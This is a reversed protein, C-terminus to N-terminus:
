EEVEIGLAKAFDLLADGQSKYDDCWSEVFVMRAKDFTERSIRHPEDRHLLGMLEAGQQPTLLADDGRETLMGVLRELTRECALGSM